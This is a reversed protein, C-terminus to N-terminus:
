DLRISIPMSLPYVKINKFSPTLIRFNCGLNFHMQADQYDQNYITNKNPQKISNTSVIKDLNTIKKLSIWVSNGVIFEMKEYDWIGVFQEPTGIFDFGDFIYAKIELIQINIENNKGQTIKFNFKGTLAYLAIVKDMDKISQIGFKWNDIGYAYFYNGLLKYPQKIDILAQNKHPNTEKGEINGLKFIDKNKTKGKYIQIFNVVLKAQNNSNVTKQIMDLQSKEKIWEMFISYFKSNLFNSEIWDNINEFTLTKLM